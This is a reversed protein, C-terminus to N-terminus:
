LYTLAAVMMASASAFLTYAGITEEPATIEYVTARGTNTSDIVESWTLKQASDIYTISGGGSNGGMSVFSWENLTAINGRPHSDQRSTGQMASQSAYFCVIQYGNSHMQYFFGYSKKQKAMAVAKDMADRYSLTGGVPSISVQECTGGQIYNLNKNISYPYIYDRSDTDYGDSSSTDAVKTVPHMTYGGGEVPNLAWLTKLSTTISPKVDLTTVGNEITDGRGLYGTNWKEDEFFPTDRQEISYFDGVKKFDWKICDNGFSNGTREGNIVYYHSSDKMAQVDTM